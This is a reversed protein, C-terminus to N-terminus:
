PWVFLPIRHPSMGPARLKFPTTIIEVPGVLTSIEVMTVIQSWVDVRKGPGYDPRALPVYSFWGMDPGVNLLLSVYLLIGATLYMHYGFNMLRPFAVNRTGLMLPVLYLRMGEMVPVAFLFMMTTGHTTFLQDYVDPGLFSNRPVMLQTRM